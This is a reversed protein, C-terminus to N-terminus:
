HNETIKPSINGIEIPGYNLKNHGLCTCSTRRFKSQVNYNIIAAVYVICCSDDLNNVINGIFLPFDWTRSYVIIIENPYNQFLELVISAQIYVPQDSAWNTLWDTLVSQSVGFIVNRSMRRSINRSEETM